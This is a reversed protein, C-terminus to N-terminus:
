PHFHSVALGTAYHDVAPFTGADLRYQMLHAM